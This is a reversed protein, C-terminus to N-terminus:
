VGGEAEKGGGGLAHRWLQQAERVKRGWKGGPSPLIEEVASGLVASSQEM